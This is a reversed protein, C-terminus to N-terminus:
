WRKNLAKWRALEDSGLKKQEIALKWFFIVVALANQFITIASWVQRSMTPELSDRLFAQLSIAGIIIALAPLTM